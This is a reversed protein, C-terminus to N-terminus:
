GEAAALTTGDSDTFQLDADSSLAKTFDFNATSLVVNSQFGTASAGSNTNDLTVAYRHSYGSLWGM